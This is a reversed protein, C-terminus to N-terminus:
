RIFSPLKGARCLGHHLLALILCELLFLEADNVRLVSIYLFRLAGSWNEQQLLFSTWLEELLPLLFSALPKCLVFAPLSFGFPVVFFDWLLSVPMQVLLSALAIKSFYYSTWPFFLIPFAVVLFLYRSIRKSFDPTEMAFVLLTASVSLVFGLNVMWFPNLLILLATSTSLVQFVSVSFGLSRILCLTGVMATTRLMSPSYESTYLLLFSCFFALWNKAHKYFRKGRISFSFFGFALLGFCSEVVLFLGAVHQGSLALAALSGGFLYFNRVKESFLSLDGFWLAKELALLHPAREFRSELWGEFRRRYPIQAGEEVDLVRKVSLNFQPLLLSGLFGKVHSPNQPPLACKLIGLIRLSRGENKEFGRSWSSLFYETNARELAWGRHRKQVRGEFVAMGRYSQTHSCLVNLEERYSSFKWVGLGFILILICVVARM